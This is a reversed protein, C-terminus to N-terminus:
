LRIDDIFVSDSFSTAMTFVSSHSIFFCTEVEDTLWGIGVVTSKMWALGPGLQSFLPWVLMDAHNDM